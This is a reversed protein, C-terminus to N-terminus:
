DANGTPPHNGQTKLVPRAPVGVVTTSPAVDKDVLAGAGIRAWAGLTRRSMVNAGLGVLVGEGVSIEGGLHAGPGIHAHDAVATHHGLLASANVVVNAGVAVATGVVALACVLTGPGLSAGYSIVATPHVATVLQEGAKELTQFLTRRAWNDGIGVILGEHAVASLDAFRGLVPLGLRNSGQAADDDDLYGIPTMVSDADRMALLVNAVVQGHGGAGLILVRM